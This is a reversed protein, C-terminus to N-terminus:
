NHSHEYSSLFTHTKHSLLIKLWPILVQRTPVNEQACFTGVAERSVYSVDWL